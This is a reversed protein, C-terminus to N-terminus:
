PAVAPKKGGGAARADPIYDFVQIRKNFQDAVFLKEGAFSLGLPMTFQGKMFGPAGVILLLKGEQDFVYLREYAGEAVWIHGDPDVALGKPRFFEGPQDGIKGFMRIPKGDYTLIQVRFNMADMVAIRGGPLLDIFSPHNFEGPESGFKGITRVLKGTALNFVQVHSRKASVMFLLGAKEDVALGVPWEVVDAGTFQRLTHGEPDLVFVTDQKSDAVYILGGVVKIDVPNELVLGSKASLNILRNAAFDFKMLGQGFDLVYISGDADATVAMPRQLGVIEKRVGSLAQVFRSQKVAGVDYEDRLVRSFKLRPPNPPSPWVPDPQSALEKRLAESLKPDVGQGSSGLPLLAVTALLGVFIGHFRGAM